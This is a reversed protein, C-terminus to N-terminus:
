LLKLGDRELYVLSARGGPTLWSMRGATDRGDRIPGIPSVTITDIVSSACMPNGVPAASTNGDVPADIYTGSASVAADVYAKTAAEASQAPDASLSLPGSLTGGYLSLFAGPGAIAIKATAQGFQNGQGYYLIGDQENFAIEAAVM